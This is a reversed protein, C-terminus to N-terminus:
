PVVPIGRRRSAKVAFAPWGRTVILAAQRRRSGPGPHPRRHHVVARDRENRDDAEPGTILRHLKVKAVAVHDPQQAAAAKLDLIQM